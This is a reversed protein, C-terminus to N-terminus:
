VTSLCLSRLDRLFFSVVCFWLFGCLLFVWLPTNYQFYRARGNHYNSIKIKTQYGKM